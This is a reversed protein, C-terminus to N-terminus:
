RGTDRPTASTSSRCATLAAADPLIRPVSRVRGLDSVEYGPWGLVARWREGMVAPMVPRTM